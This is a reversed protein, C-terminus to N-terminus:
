TVQVPLPWRLSVTTGGPTTSIDLSDVLGSLVALAIRPDAPDDPDDGFLDEVDGGVPGSEPGADSVEVTFGSPDDRLVIRVPVDPAHEANVAVARSCAEGVALRLEDVLDDPLGARRAAAVGVLRATRVHVPLASLLLEVM